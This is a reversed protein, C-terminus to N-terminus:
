IETCEGGLTGQYVNGLIFQTALEYAESLQVTCYVGVRSVFNSNNVAEAIAM